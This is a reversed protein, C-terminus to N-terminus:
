LEYLFDDLYVQPYLKCSKEFVSRIIITMSHFKLLKNLPLDDNSNFKIKMYNKRCNNKGGGNMTKIENKIRCVDTSYFRPKEASARALDRVGRRPSPKDFHSFTFLNERIIM